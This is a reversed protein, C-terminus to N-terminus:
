KLCYTDLGKGGVVYVANLGDTWLDEQIEFKDTYLSYSHPSPLSTCLM